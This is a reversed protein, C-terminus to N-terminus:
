RNASIFERFHGIIGKFTRKYLTRQGEDLSKHNSMNEELTLILHLAEDIKMLNASGKLTHVIRKLQDYVKDTLPEEFCRALESEVEALDEAFADIMDPDLDSKKRGDGQSPINSHPTQQMGYYKKLIERANSTVDESGESLEVSMQASYLLAILIETLEEKTLSYNIFDPTILKTFFNTLSVLSEIRICDVISKKEEIFDHSVDASEVKGKLVSYKQSLLKLCQYKANNHAWTKIDAYNIPVSHNRMGWLDNLYVEFIWYKSVCQNFTVLDFDLAALQEFDKIIQQGLQAVRNLGMLLLVNNLKQLFEVNELLLDKQTHDLYIRELLEHIKILEEKIGVGFRRYVGASITYQDDIMINSQIFQSGNPLAEVASILEPSIVPQLTKSRLLDAFRMDTSALLRHTNLDINSNQHLLVDLYFSLLSWDKNFPTGVAAACEKSISLIAELAKEKDKGQILAILQRQYVTRLVKALAVNITDHKEDQILSEGGLFDTEYIENGQGKAELADEMLICFRLLSDENEGEGFASVADLNSLCYHLTKSAEMWNMEKFINDIGLLSAKIEDKEATENSSNELLTELANRLKIVFGNLTEIIKPDKLSHLQAM